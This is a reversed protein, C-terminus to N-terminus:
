WRGARTGRRRFRRDPEAVREAGAQEPGAPLDGPERDGPALPRGARRRTAVFASAGLVAVALVTGPILAGTEWGSLGALVLLIALVLLPWVPPPWRRM